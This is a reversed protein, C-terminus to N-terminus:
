WTSLAVATDTRLAARSEDAWISVRWGPASTQTYQWFCPRAAPVALPVVLIQFRTAVSLPKTESQNTAVGLVWPQVLAIGAHTYYGRRFGLVRTIM